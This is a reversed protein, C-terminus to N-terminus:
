QLLLCVSAKYFAQGTNPHLYTNRDLTPHSKLWYPTVELGPNLILKGEKDFSNLIDAALERANAPRMVASPEYNLISFSPSSPVTLKSANQGDVSQLAFFSTLIVGLIHRTM